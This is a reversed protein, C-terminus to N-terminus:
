LLLHRIDSVCREPYQHLLNLLKLDNLPAKQAVPAEQWFRAYILSVFLSVTMLGRTERATLQMEDIHVASAATQQAIINSTERRSTAQAIRRNRGAEKDAFSKDIGAM